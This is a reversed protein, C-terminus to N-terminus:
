VQYSLYLQLIFMTDDLQIEAESLRNIMTRVKELLAQEPPTLM